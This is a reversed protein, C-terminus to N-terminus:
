ELFKRFTWTTDQRALILDKDTLRELRFGIPQNGPAKVKLEMLSGGYALPNLYLSDNTKRYTGWDKNGWGALYQYAEGQFALFLTDNHQVPGTQAMISKLHWRGYLDGIDAGDPECSSLAFLGFLALACGAFLGLGKHWANGSTMQRCANGTMQRITENQRM